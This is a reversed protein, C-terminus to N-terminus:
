FHKLILQVSVYLILIGTAREVWLHPVKHHTGIRSGIQGGILVALFLPLYDSWLHVQPNKIVQGILGSISNLLIFLSATAAIQKPKGWGMLLMIPALFIGGGIGVIGSLLGLGGGILSSKLSSPRQTSDLASKPSWLLRISALLLSSALLLIFTKEQIKYLGGLFAMPVSSLIFPTSLKWDILKKQYFIWTGGTVVILNSILAIQPLLSYPINSISLLALYSSGGGFGVTAYTLAILFFSLALTLM